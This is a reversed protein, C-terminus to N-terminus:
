LSRTEHRWGSAEKRRHAEKVRGAVLYKPAMSHRIGRIGVSGVKLGYAARLSLNPEGQAVVHNHKHYGDSEALTPQVAVLLKDM